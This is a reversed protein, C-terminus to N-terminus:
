GIVCSKSSHAYNIFIQKRQPCRDLLVHHDIGPTNRQAAISGIHHWCKTGSGQDWDVGQCNENRICQALCDVLTTVGAQPQGGGASTDIASNWM